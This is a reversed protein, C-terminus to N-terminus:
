QLLLPLLLRLLHHGRPRRPFPSCLIVCVADRDDSSCLLSPLLGHCHSSLGSWSCQSCGERNGWVGVSLHAASIGGDAQWGPSPVHRWRGRWSPLVGPRDMTSMPPSVEYTPRDRIREWRPRTPVTRVFPAMGQSYLKSQKNMNMINIKILKGPTGGRVSFYFWSRRAWDPVIDGEGFPSVPSGSHASVPCPSSPFLSHFPLCSPHAAYCPSVQPISKPSPSM